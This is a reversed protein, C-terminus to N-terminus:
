RAKEMEAIQRNLKEVHEGDLRNQAEDQKIARRMYAIGRERDKIGRRASYMLVYLYLIRLQRKLPQMRETAQALATM